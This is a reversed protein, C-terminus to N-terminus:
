PHRPPLNAPEDDVLLIVHQLSSMQARMAEIKRRYLSSTTVLVKAQGLNMRTAIPQPGFASFLPTVVCRHKLTGLLAIYLAPLRGLLTFVHDGANVGLDALANAFRSTLESLQGYSLDLTAGEKGLWRLATQASRPGRAHRDVAEHAINLGRGDPLGDLWKRASDWTFRACEDDYDLLNPTVSFAQPFKHVTEM